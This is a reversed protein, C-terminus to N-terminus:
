TYYYQFTIGPGSRAWAEAGSKRDPRVQQLKLTHIVDTHKQHYMEMGNEPVTPTCRVKFTFEGYLFPKNTEVGVAHFVNSDLNVWHGSYFQMAEDQFRVIENEKDLLGSPSEIMRWRTGTLAKIETFADCFTDKFHANLAAEPVLMEQRVIVSQVTTQGLDNETFNPGAIVYMTIPLPTQPVKSRNTLRFIEVGDILWEVEGEKWRLTFNHFATSLDTQLLGSPISIWDSLPQDVSDIETIFPPDPVPRELLLAPPPALPSKFINAQWLDIQLAPQLAPIEITLGAKDYHISTFRYQDILDAQRKRYANNDGFIADARAFTGNETRRVVLQVAPSELSYPFYSETVPSWFGVGFVSATDM